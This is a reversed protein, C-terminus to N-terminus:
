KAPVRRTKTSMCSDRSTKKGHHRHDTGCIDAALGDSARQSRCDVLLLLALMGGYEAIRRLGAEIFAVATINSSGWPPNTSILDFRKLGPPLDSSLFDFQVVDPHQPAIDSAFVRAGHTELRRAMGRNVGAREWADRKDLLVHKALADTVWEETLYCDRPVRPFTGHKGM